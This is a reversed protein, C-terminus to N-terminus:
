SLASNAASILSVGLLGVASPYRDAKHNLAAEVAPQYLKSFRTYVAEFADLGPNSSARFSAASPRFLSRLDTLLVSSLDRFLFRAIVRWKGEIWRSVLQM